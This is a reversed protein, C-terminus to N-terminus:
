KGFRASRDRTPLTPFSLQSKNPLIQTSPPMITDYVVAIDILFSKKVLSVLALSTAGCGFIAM